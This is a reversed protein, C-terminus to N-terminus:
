LSRDHSRYVLISILCTTNENRTLQMFCFVEKSILTTFIIVYNRTDKVFRLNMITNVFAWSIVRDQALTIWDIEEWSIEKLVM